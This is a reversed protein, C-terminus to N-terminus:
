PSQGPLPPAQAVAEAVADLEAAAWSLGEPAWLQYGVVERSDRLELPAACRPCVADDLRRSLPVRLHCAPCGLHTM